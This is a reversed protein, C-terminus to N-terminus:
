RWTRINENSLMIPAIGLFPVREVANAVSNTTLGNVANTSRALAPQNNSRSVALHSGTAGAYALSFLLDQHQYQTELGYHQFKADKFDPDTAVALLPSRDGTYPPGPLAA